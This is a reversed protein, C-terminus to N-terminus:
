GLPLSVVIGVGAIILTLMLGGWQTTEIKELGFVGGAFLFFAIVPYVVLLFAALWLKRHFAKIFLPAAGVVLLAFATDVRWREASPYFGYLFQGFRAKIFVWCAGDGTCATRTEGTWDADLFLWRFAPPILLYLIYLALLTLAANWPSSLLNRRLWGIGGVSALPPPLDPQSGRANMTM